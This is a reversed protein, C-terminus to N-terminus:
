LIATKLEEWTKKKSELYKLVHSNTSNERKEIEAKHRYINNFYKELSKDSLTPDNSKRKAAGEIVIDEDKGSIKLINIIESVIEPRLPTSGKDEMKTIVYRKLKIDPLREIVMNALEPQSLLNLNRQAKILLGTDKKVRAEKLKEEWMDLKFELKRFVQKDEPTMLLESEIAELIKIDPHKLINKEIRSMHSPHFKINEPLRERVKKGLDIPNKFGRLLRYNRLFAGSNGKDIAKKIEEEYQQNQNKDLNAKIGLFLKSQNDTLELAQTLAETLKQDIKIKGDELMYIREKDFRISYDGSLLSNIKAALKEYGINQKQKAFRIVSRLNGKRLASQLKKEAEREGSTLANHIIETDEKSIELKKIIKEILEKDPNKRKNKELRPLYHKLKSSNIEKALEPQSFGRKERYSSIILGVNKEKRAKTLAEDIKRTKNTFRELLLEFAIIKENDSMELEETIANLITSSKLPPNETEWDSITDERIIRSNIKKSLQEALKKESVGLSKRKAKLFDGLNKPNELGSRIEPYLLKRHEVALKLFRQKEDEKFNLIQFITEITPIEPIYKGRIWTQLTPESFTTSGTTKRFEECFETQSIHALEISAKLYQGLNETNNKIESWKKDVAIRNEKALTNFKELYKGTINLIDPLALIVKDSPATIEKIWNGIEKQPSYSIKNGLYKTLKEAFSIKSLQGRKIFFELMQGFNDKKAIDSDPKEVLMNRAVDHNRKKNGTITNKTEKVNEEKRNQIDRTQAKKNENAKKVKRDEQIKKYLQEEAKRAAKIKELKKRELDKERQLIKKIEKEAEILKAELFNMLDNGPSIEGNVLSQYENVTIQESLGLNEDIFKSVPKKHSIRWKELLTLVERSDKINLAM